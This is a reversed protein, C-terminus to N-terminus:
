PRAVLVDERRNAMPLGEAQPMLWAHFGAARARSVLGLIAGDEPEGRDLENFRVPPPGDSGTYARHFKAGAVSALFRKRMSANPVDGLLLRGGPALLDLAADVFAFPSADYFAYQLVSYALIADVRGRLDALVRPCAPFRAAVKELGPRVPHHALMEESDILVLRHGAGLCTDRVRKSLESCGPGIDVVLRSHPAAIAPLKAVIDALIVDTAGGRLQEPFGARENCSLTEDLAMRRFDDFGLGSFRAHDRLRDRGSGSRERPEPAGPEEEENTM